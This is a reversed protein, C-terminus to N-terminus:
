FPIDADMPIRKGAPATAVKAVEVKREQKVPPEGMWCLLMAGTKTRKKGWYCFQGCAQTLFSGDERVVGAPLYSVLADAQGQSLWTVLYDDDGSTAYSDKSARGREIAQRILTAAWDNARTSSGSAEVAAAPVPAPQEVLRESYRRIEEEDDLRRISYAYEERAEVDERRQAQELSEPLEGKWCLLYFTKNKKQSFFSKAVITYDGEEDVISTGGNNLKVFLNYQAETIFTESFHGSFGRPAYQADQVRDQTEARDIIDAALKLATLAM